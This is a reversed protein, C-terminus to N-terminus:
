IRKELITIIESKRNQDIYNILEELTEIKEKSIMDLEFSSKNFVNLSDLYIQFLKILEETFNRWEFELDIGKSKYFHIIKNILISDSAIMSYEIYSLSMQELIFELFPFFEKNKCDYTQCISEGYFSFNQSKPDHTISPHIMCGIKNIDILGLFPCNYIEPNYKQLTSEKKEFYERYSIITEKNSYNVFSNFYTTRELILEYIETKDLILNFVGCCSGCSSNSNPYCLSM